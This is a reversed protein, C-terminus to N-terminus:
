AAPAPDLAPRGDRLIQLRLQADEGARLDLADFKVAYRGGAGELGTPQLSGPRPGPADGGQDLGFRMVQQGLGVPVADAYLHWVGGRPFRMPVRFHGDAGPREAHEHLFTRGDDSIAILHLRKSLEVEYRTAPRAAGLPTM